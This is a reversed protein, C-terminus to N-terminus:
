KKNFAYFKAPSGIWIEGPPIDKNVFSMAGTIANDGVTVGHQFVTNTGIFCNKGIQAAGIQHRDTNLNNTMIRAALFSNDGIKCKKGIISEYRIVVNNGIECDGSTTVRSDILCNKGIKTNERLEVFNKIVTNDGIVVGAEIVVFEGIVVNAGILAGESIVNRPNEFHTNTSKKVVSLKPKPMARKSATRGCNPCFEEKKDKRIFVVAVFATFDRSSLCM